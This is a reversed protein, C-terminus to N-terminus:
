STSIVIALGLVILGVGIIVSAREAHPLVKEVFVVLTFALMWGLSMVGAAVLVAFLAWCCGLCFAGHLIEMRLAGLRGDRWHLAVFAFPSRCPRLCVRKVPTFQYLGATILTAGLAVPAWATRDVSALHSAAESAIQVFVYVPSRGGVLRASLRGHLDLHPCCCGSRTAGSGLRRRWGHRGAVPRSVPTM